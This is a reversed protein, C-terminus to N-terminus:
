GESLSERAANSLSPPTAHRLVNVSRKVILPHSTCPRHDGKDMGIRHVLRAPNKLHRVERGPVPANGDVDGSVAARGLRVGVQGNGVHGLGTPFRYVVRQGSLARNQDATRDSRRDNRVHVVLAWVLRRCEHQRARTVVGGLFKGLPPDIGVRGVAYVIAPSVRELIQARRKTRRRQRMEERVKEGFAVLVGIQLGDEMLEFSELPGIMVDMMLADGTWRYNEGPALVAGMLAGERELCAYGIALQLNQGAGAM